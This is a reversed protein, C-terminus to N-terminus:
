GADTRQQTASAFINCGSAGGWTQYNIITTSQCYLMQPFSLLGTTLLLAYEFILRKM